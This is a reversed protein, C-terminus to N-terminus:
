SGYNVTVTGDRNVGAGPAPVQQVVRARRDSGADMDPGKLFQGTFGLANLQALADGYLLGRLDPMLFQNARSVKLTIPADSAVSAGAPPDTAAVQGPPLTGDVDAQLITTFGATDLNLKAQEATQGVVDPVTRASPGSGVFIVIENSTASDQQAAPDTGIVRDLEESTSAQPMRRVNEFGADALTKVAEDYSLRSVDPIRRQEPGTSVNVTIDGGSSVSEGAGPDTGIVRGSQMSGDPETDVVPSLGSDQLQSVAEQQTLGQVDPVRVRNMAGVIYVGAIVLLTVAVLAGAIVWRRSGRRQEQVPFQLTSPGRTAPIDDTDDAQQAPAEPANGSGVRRLDAHMEAASQYRNEPKKALAKLVVADLDPSIGGHRQSPPVPRERVHQYAVSLPTDGTFLAQGTLMEYLVCGLSYVDTRADVQQGRAQEPSFYQATGVVASTATLRDGTTANMARAIGFDMVKVAGTPTIMINAPKIDRHVIGRSHSFELATCVDAIISIARRPPLAGHRQILKGVTHGDVYEMVLFPLNGNPTQAEGTDYVAVISPHNLSATHKAERRFRQYFNPDRALDARLIKIAVDRHLRVDRAKHVESMGGFGLIEGLEYRDTLQQPVTM